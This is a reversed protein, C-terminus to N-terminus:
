IWSWPSQVIFTVLPTLELCPCRTQPRQPRQKGANWTPTLCVSFLARNPGRLILGERGKLMVQKHLADLQSRSKDLKDDVLM